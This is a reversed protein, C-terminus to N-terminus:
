APRPGPLSEKRLAALRRAMARADEEAISRVKDYDAQALLPPAFLVAVGEIHHPGREGETLVPSSAPQLAVIRTMRAQRGSDGRCGPWCGAPASGAASPMSRATWRRSRRPPLRATATWRMRTTSSTRKTPARACRSRPPGPGCGPILDPTIRGDVSPELFVEAGLATMTRLKEQAFADSSVIKLPYGKLACVLALSSGTSGGTYEVVTQGPRLDGRREAGEIMARAMRDKYSGTPSFYELKVLVRAAGPPTVARLEVVPTNGIADLVSRLVAMGDGLGCRRRRPRWM